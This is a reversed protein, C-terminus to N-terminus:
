TQVQHIAKIFPQRKKEWVKEEQPSGKKEFSKYKSCNIDLSQTAALHRWTSCWQQTTKEPSRPDHITQQKLEAWASPADTTYSRENGNIFLKLLVSAWKKRMCVISGSSKGKEWILLCTDSHLTIRYGSHCNNLLKVIPFVCYIGLICSAPIVNISISLILSFKSSKILDTYMIISYNTIYVNLDDNVFV